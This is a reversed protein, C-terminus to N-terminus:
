CITWAPTDVRHDLLAVADKRPFNSTLKRNNLITNLQKNNSKM